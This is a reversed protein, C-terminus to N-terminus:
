SNYQSLGTGTFKTTDPLVEPKQVGVTYALLEGDSSLELGTSFTQTIRRTRLSDDISLPVVSRGAPQPRQANSVRVDSTHKSVQALGQWHLTVVASLLMLRTLSGKITM